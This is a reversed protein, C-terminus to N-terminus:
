DTTLRSIVRQTDAKAVYVKANGISALASSRVARLTAAVVAATQCAADFETFRDFEHVIGGDTLVYIVAYM